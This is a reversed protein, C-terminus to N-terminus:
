FQLWRFLRPAGLGDIASAFENFPVAGFIARKVDVRGDSRRVGLFFSPTSNIGLASATSLAGRILGAADTDNVCREYNAMDLAVTRAIQRRHEDGLDTTGFLGDHM